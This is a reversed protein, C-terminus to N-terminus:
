RCVRAGPRSLGFGWEKGDVVYFSTIVRGRPLMLASYGSCQSTTLAGYLETVRAEADGVTLGRNTRWGSPSWNTWLGSVRGRTFEVAVGEPTFPKWNYYWTPLRCDRCLGHSAGWLAVVQARTMGLRVNGFSAGPVVLGVRPPAAAAAPALALSAAALAVLRM